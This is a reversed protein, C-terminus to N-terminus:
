TSSAMAKSVTVITVDRLLRQRQWGIASRSASISGRQLQRSHAEGFTRVHTTCWEPEACRRERQRCLPSSRLGGDECVGRIPTGRCHIVLAEQLIWDGSSYRKHIVCHRRVAAPGLGWPEIAEDDSASDQVWVRKNGQFGTIDTEWHGKKGGPKEQGKKGGPKEQGKKGGSAGLKRRPNM